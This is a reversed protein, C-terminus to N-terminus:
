LPFCLCFVKVAGLDKKVWRRSYHFYFCFYVLPAYNLKFAKHLAFSVVFLIFLCGESRSFINAFLAISLPNTELIYLCSVYSLILFVVWDFM